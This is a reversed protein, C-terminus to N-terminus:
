GKTLYTQNNVKGGSEDKEILVKAFFPNLHVTFNPSGTCINSLDYKAPAPFLWIGGVSVFCSSVAHHYKSSYKAQISSQRSWKTWGEDRIVPHPRFSWFCDNWPWKSLFSSRVIDWKEDRMETMRPWESKSHGEFSLIGENRLWEPIVQSSSGNACFIELSKPLAM